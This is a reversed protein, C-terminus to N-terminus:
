EIKFLKWRLILTTLNGNSIDKEIATTIALHLMNM